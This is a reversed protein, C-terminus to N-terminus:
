QAPHTQASPTETAPTQLQDKQASSPAETVSPPNFLGELDDQDIGVGSDGCKLNFWVCGILIPIFVVLMGYEFAM